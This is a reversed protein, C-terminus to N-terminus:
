WRAGVVESTDWGRAVIVARSVQDAVEAAHRGGLGAGPMVVVVVVPSGALDSPPLVAGAFWSDTRPLGNGDVRQASGTKGIVLSRWPHDAFARAATGRVVVDALATRLKAADAAPLVRTRTPERDPDLRPLPIQGDTAVMSVLGAVGLPTARVADQGIARAAVAADSDAAAHPVYGGTGWIGLGLDMRQGFGAAAAVDLVPWAAARDVESAVAADGWGERLPRHMLLGAYGFWTNVSGRLAGALGLDSPMPKNKFNRLRTRLARDKGSGRPLRPLRADELSGSGGTRTLGAPQRGDILAKVLPDSSGLAAAATAIKFTSGPRLDHSTWCASPSERGAEDRAACALLDGDVADLLLVAGRLAHTDPEPGAFAFLARHDDLARLAQAQLDDDLTLRGSSVAAVSRLAAEGEPWPRRLRLDSGPIVLWAGAPWEVLREAHPSAPVGIVDADPTWLSAPRSSGVTLKEFGDTRVRLRTAPLADAGPDDAWRPRGLVDVCHATGAHVVVISSALEEGGCSPASRLRFDPGAVARGDTSLEWRTNPRIKFGALPPGDPDTEVRRVGGLTLRDGNHWELGSRTLVLAGFDNRAVVGPGAALILEATAARERAPAIQWRRGSQLGPAGREIMVAAADAADRDVVSDPLTETIVSRRARREAVHDALATPTGSADTLFRAGGAEAVPATPPREVHLALLNVGPRVKVSLRRTGEANPEPLSLADLPRDNWRASVISGPAAVDLAVWGASKATVPVRIFVPKPRDPVPAPAIGEVGWRDGPIRTWVSRAAAETAPTLRDWNAFGRGSLRAGDSSLTTGAPGGAVSAAVRDPGVRAPRGDLRLEIPGTAGIQHRRWTGRLAPLGTWEADPGARWAAPLATEIWTHEAEGRRLITCNHVGGLPRGAPVWAQLAPAFRIGVEGEGGDVCRASAAVLGPGLRFAVPSRARDYDDILEVVSRSLAWSLGKAPGDADGPVEVHSRGPEVRIWGDALGDAVAAELQRDAARTPLVGRGFPRLQDRRGHLLLRSPSALPIRRSTGGHRVLLQSPAPQETPETSLVVLDVADVDQYGQVRGAGDLVPMARRLQQWRVSLRVTAAEHWITFRDQVRARGGTQLRHEMGGAAVVLGDQEAVVWAVRDDPLFRPEAGPTAPALHFWGKSSGDIPPVVIRDRVGDGRGTPDPGVDIRRFGREPHAYVSWDRRLIERTREAGGGTLELTVEGIELPAGPELASTEGSVRAHVGDEDVDILVGGGLREVDIAVTKAGAPGRAAVLSSARWATAGVLLCGALLLGIRVRRLLNM